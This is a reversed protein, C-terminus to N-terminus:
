PASFQMVGAPDCFWIVTAKRCLLSFFPFQAFRPPEQASFGMLNIKLDAAAQRRAAV